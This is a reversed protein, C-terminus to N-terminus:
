IVFMGWVPVAGCDAYLEQYQIKVQVVLICVNRELRATHSRMYTCIYRMDMGWIHYSTNYSMDNGNNRISVCTTHICTVCPVLSIRMFHMVTINESTLITWYKVVRNQMSSDEVFANTVWPKACTGHLTYAHRCECEDAHSVIRGEQSISSMM